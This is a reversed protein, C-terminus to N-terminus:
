AEGPPLALEHGTEGDARVRQSPGIGGKDEVAVSKERCSDREIAPVEIQVPRLRPVTDHRRVPERQVGRGVAREHKFDLGFISAAAM